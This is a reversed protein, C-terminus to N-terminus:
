GFDDVLFDESFLLAVDDDEEFDVFSKGLPRAPPKDPRFGRM